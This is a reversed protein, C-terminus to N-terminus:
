PLVRIPSGVVPPVLYFPYKLKAYDRDSSSPEFSAEQLGNKLAAPLPHSHVGAEIKVDGPLWLPVDDNVFFYPDSGNHYYARVQTYAYKTESFNWNVKANYQVTFYTVSYIITTLEVKLYDGTQSRAFAAFDNLAEELTGFGSRGGFIVKGKFDLTDYLPDVHKLNANSPDNVSPPQRRVYNSQPAGEAGSSIPISLGGGGGGGFIGAPYIM